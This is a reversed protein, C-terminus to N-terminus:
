TGAARRPAGYAGILLNEEVTLSPFCGGARRCWRSAAGCSRAPGAPRRDARGDFRIAEARRGAAPRDLTKLFTSKGAGNAGIIAM